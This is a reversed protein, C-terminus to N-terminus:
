SPKAERTRHIKGLGAHRTTEVAAKATVNDQPTFQRKILLRERTFYSSGQRTKRVEAPSSKTNEGDDGVHQIWGFPGILVEEPSTPRGHPAWQGNISM